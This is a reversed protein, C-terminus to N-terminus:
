SVNQIKSDNIWGLLIMIFSVIIGAIFGFAHTMFSGINDNALIFFAIVILADLRYWKFPFDKPFRLYCVIFVAILAFIGGSSGGGYVPESYSLIISCAIEAIIGCFIFMFLTKWKGLFPSILSGIAILAISNFFIHIFNFHLFICTIWRYFEYNLYEMSTSGWHEFATGTIQTAAYIPIFSIVLIIAVINNKSWKIISKM